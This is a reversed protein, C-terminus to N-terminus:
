GCRRLGHRQGEGLHVRRDRSRTPRLTDDKSGDADDIKHGVTKWVRGAEDYFTESLAMRNTSSSAAPDTTADLGSSSIYQGVAVVRDQNDYKTVTYPASPPVEVIRRGRGDYVYSTIRQGTTNDQIYATRSTLLGNGGDVGGDFELHETQVMNAPGSGEGAPSGYDNTGIYQDIARGFIDYGTRRITGSAEKVRIRHGDDDYGYRTSDYHTGESGPGYGSGPPILFYRREELVHTGSADYLYTTM